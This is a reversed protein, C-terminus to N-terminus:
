FRILCLFRLLNRHEEEIEINLFAQKIDSVIAIPGMRFRLWIDYILPLLCPGSYLCENLSPEGKNARSSGDLVPRVKTTLRDQKVVPRHPLYHM